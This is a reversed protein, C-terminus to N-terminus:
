ASGNAGEAASRWVNGLWRPTGEWGSEADAAIEAVLPPLVTVADHLGVTEVGALKERSAADKPEVLFVLELDHLAIRSVVQCVYLLRTAVVSIGLEERGEREVAQEVTERAAVRGGPLSFHEGQATHERYVVLRGEHLLVCRVEVQM